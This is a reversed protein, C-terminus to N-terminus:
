PETRRRSPKSISRRFISWFISFNAFSYPRPIAGNGVPRGRGPGGRFEPSITRVYPAAASGSLVGLLAQSRCAKM